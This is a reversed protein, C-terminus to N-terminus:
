ERCLKETALVLAPLRKWNSACDKSAWFWCIFEISGCQKKVEGWLEKLAKIAEVM